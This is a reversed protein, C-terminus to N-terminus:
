YWKCNPTRDYITIIASKSEDGRSLPNRVEGIWFIMIGLDLVFTRMTQSFCCSCSVCRYLLIMPEVGAEDTNQFEVFDVKGGNSQSHGDLYAVNINVKLARSLATIQPHDACRHILMIHDVIRSNGLILSIGRGSVRRNVHLTRGVSACPGHYAGHLDRELRAM